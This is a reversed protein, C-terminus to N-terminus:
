SKAELKLTAARAEPVAERKQTTHFLVAFVAAGVAQVILGVGVGAKFEGYILIMLGVPSCASIGTFVDDKAQMGTAGWRLFDLGLPGLWSAFGLLIVLVASKNSVRYLIRMLYGITLLNLGITAAVCAMTRSMEPTWGSDRIKMERVALVLPIASLVLTAAVVMFNPSLPRSGLAADRLLRRRHYEASLWASSMVPLIGILVGMLTSAVVQIAPPVADRSRLGGAAPGSFLADMSAIGLWTLTAWLCVLALGLLPSFALVDDRHFKRTAGAFCFVAVAAQAPISIELDIARSFGGVVPLATLVPALLVTLGPLLLAMTGGTAFGLIIAIILLGMAAQTLFSLLAIATWAFIAFAALTVNTLLWDGASDGAGLTTFLGIIVNVAAISVAQSTSGLLYGAVGDAGSIPMLRHSQIMGSALDKRIANRVANGGVLLLAGGQVVGLIDTCTSLVWARKQRQPDIRMSLLIIVVVIVAYAGTTMGINKTGGRVKYHAWGLAGGFM